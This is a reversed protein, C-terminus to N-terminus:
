RRDALSVAARRTRVGIVTLVLPTGGRHGRMGRTRSQDNYVATGGLKSTRMRHDSMVIGNGVATSSQAFTPAAFAVARAGIQGQAARPTAAAADRQPSAWPFTAWTIQTM